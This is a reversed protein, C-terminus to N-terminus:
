QVVEQDLCDLMGEWDSANFAAYYRCLLALADARAM